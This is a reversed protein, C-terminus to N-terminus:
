ELPQHVAHLSPTKPSAEASAPPADFPLETAEAPRAAVALGLMNGVRGDALVVALVLWAVVALALTVGVHWRHGKRAPASIAPAALPAAAPLEGTRTLASKEPKDAPRHPHLFGNGPRTAHPETAVSAPSLAPKFVRQEAETPRVDGPQALVRQVVDGDWQELTVWHSVHEATAALPVGRQLCIKAIRGDRAHRRIATSVHGVAQKYSSFPAAGFVVKRDHFRIVLRYSSGPSGQLM